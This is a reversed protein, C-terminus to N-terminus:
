VYKHQKKYDLSTKSEHQSTDPDQQNTNVRTASTNVQASVRANFDVQDSCMFKCVISSETEKLIIDKIM